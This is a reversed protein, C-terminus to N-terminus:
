TWVSGLWLASRRPGFIQEFAVVVVLGLCLRMVLKHLLVAPLVVEVGLLAVPDAVAVVVIGREAFPEVVVAGPLLLLGRRRRLLLRRRVILAVWIREFVSPILPNVIRVSHELDGLIARIRPNLFLKARLQRLHLLLLVGLPRLPQERRM